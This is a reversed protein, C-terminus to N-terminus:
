TLFRKKDLLENKYKSLTIGIEKIRAALKPEIFLAKEKLRQLRPKIESAQLRTRKETL